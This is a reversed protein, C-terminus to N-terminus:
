KLQLQCMRNKELLFPSRRDVLGAQTAPTHIEPAFRLTRHPKNFNYHCRLKGLKKKFLGRFLAFCTTRGAVFSNSQRITLNLREIFSTYLTESDESNLLAKEFDRKSM